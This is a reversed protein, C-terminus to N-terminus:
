CSVLEFAVAPRGGFRTGTENAIATFAAPVDVDPRNLGDLYARHEQLSAIGRDLSDSVDVAHSAQPSNVVALYKVGSWPELELDRFIWRNAADGVADIAARGVNRHDPSNFRGSIYRDHHNFTIVLDPRHRRIAAAIARRLPVGYEIVGDAHDLFEVSAVGVVAASKRQEAERVDAALLPDMGDIGAEGRCALLYAVTRGSATWHAVASAAGFEMDDPHALVALARSWDEPMPAFADVM